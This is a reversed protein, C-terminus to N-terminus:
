GVYLISKDAGRVMISEVGPVTPIAVSNGDTYTIQFESDSQAISDVVKNPVISPNETTRITVSFGDYFYINLTEANHNSSKITRNELFSTVKKNERLSM